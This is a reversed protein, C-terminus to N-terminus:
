EPHNQRTFGAPRNKYIVSQLIRYTYQAAKTQLAREGTSLEGLASPMNM